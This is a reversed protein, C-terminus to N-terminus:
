MTSPFGGKIQTKFDVRHLIGERHLIVSLHIPLSVMSHGVLTALKKVPCFLQVRFEKILLQECIDGWRVM